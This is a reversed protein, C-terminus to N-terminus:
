EPGPEMRTVDYGYSVTPEGFGEVALSVEALSQTLHLLRLTDPPANDPRYRELHNLVSEMHALIGDYFAQIDEMSSATRKASREAMTELSWDMWVELHAFGEPLASTSM